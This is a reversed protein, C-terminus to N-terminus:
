TPIAGPIRKGVCEMLAERLRQLKKRVSAATTSQQQAIDAAKAGAEYRLRILERSRSPLQELCFALAKLKEKWDDGEAQEIAHISSEVSAAIEGTFMLCERQRKRGANRALNLAIGRLWPALPRSEDYEDLKQWATILTEQFLDDAVGPDRVMTRLFAMLPGENERVLMEFLKRSRDPMALRLVLVSNKDEVLNKDRNACAHCTKWFNQPDGEFFSARLELQFM